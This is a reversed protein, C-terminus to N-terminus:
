GGLDASLILLSDGDHLEAHTDRIFQQGNINAIYGRKLCDGELCERAFDPLRRGVDVLVGGLTGASADISAVGARQRPIAYFEVTVAMTETYLSRSFRCLRPGGPFTGLATIDKM